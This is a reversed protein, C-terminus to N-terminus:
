ILSVSLVTWLCSDALDFELRPNIADIVAASAAVAFGTADSDACGKADLIEVDLHEENM